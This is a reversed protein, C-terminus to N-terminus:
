KQEAIFSDTTTVTGRKPFIKETLVKHVEPDGDFCADAIITMKYDMDFARTVTALVIGSTSIGFLVLNEIGRSRLTLNLHNETFAGARQKYIVLDNPQIIASHFDASPSGKVFLNNQKAQLFPTDVASVEPHGESFGLGVHILLYQKTRALEVLKSANPIVSDYGDAMSLIGQQLDLTLLATKSPDLKM